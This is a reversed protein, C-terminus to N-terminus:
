KAKAPLDPFVRAVPAYTIFGESLNLSLAHGKSQSLFSALGLKALERAYPLTANCLAQTSTKGVAGPMNAVCYHVIDDVVYVPDSHTTAKSTECCGGQDICIDVIVAGKKMLRLQERRILKPAKDGPILVAGIVLDARTLCEELALPDFFRTTVNAPLVDNLYRLRDLSIDMITVRAGMGAAVMASHTGSVGGGIVLVDAPAVGPVGGLLVGRGGRQSELFRAGAQIAIKGAIESMPTLLPLRGAANEITEYAVAHIGAKLCGETLERSAALHFYTFLIQNKRLLKIEAAQPEKVKIVLDAKAFIDAASDVMTAGAAVYQEDPFGSGQGATKQVFVTHGDERLMRAGAPTLAVRFEDTKIEKPVGIQM